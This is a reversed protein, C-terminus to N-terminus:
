EKTDSVLDSTAWELSNKIDARVSKQLSMPVAKIAIIKLSLTSRLLCLRVSESM